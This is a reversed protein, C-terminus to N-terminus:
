ADAWGRVDSESWGLAKLADRVRLNALLDRGCAVDRVWEETLVPLAAPESACAHLTIGCPSWCGHLDKAGLETWLFWWAAPVGGHLLLRAAAEVPRPEGYLRWVEETWPEAARVRLRSIFAQQWSMSIKGSPILFIAHDGVPVVAQRRLIALRIQHQIWPLSADRETGLDAVAALPGRVPLASLDHAARETKVVAWGEVPDPVWAKDSM